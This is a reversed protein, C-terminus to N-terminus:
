TVSSSDKETESRGHIGSVMAPARERPAHPHENNIWRTIKILAIDSLLKMRYQYIDIQM